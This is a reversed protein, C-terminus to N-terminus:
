AVRVLLVKINKIRMGGYADSWTGLERSGIYSGWAETKKKRRIIVGRLAISESEPINREDIRKKKKKVPFL